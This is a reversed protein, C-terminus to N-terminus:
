RRRRELATPPRTTDEASGRQMRENVASRRDTANSGPAQTQRERRLEEAINERTVRRARTEIQARDPPTSPRNVSTRDPDQEPLDVSPRNDRDQGDDSSRPNDRNRPRDSGRDQRNPSESDDRRDLWRDYDFGSNGEDSENNRFRDRVQDARERSIGERDPSSASWRHYERELEESRYRVGRRHVPDHRWREADDLNRARDPQTQTVVTHHHQHYHRVVVVQRRPWDWHTIFYGAPVRYGGVWIIRTGVFYQSPPDWYVPPYASWWWGGYIVYPNYYPIFIIQNNAPEIIIIERDQIVRVENMSRLYGTNYAEQRLYQISELVDDPQMLFADGLNRTWTLDDDMHALIRPFAVLAM